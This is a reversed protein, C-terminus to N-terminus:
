FPFGPFNKLGRGQSLIVEQMEKELTRLPIRNRAMKRQNLRRYAICRRYWYLSEASNGSMRYIRAISQLADAKFTRSSQVGEGCRGTALSHLPQRVIGELVAVAEEVRGVAALAKGRALRVLPCREAIEWAEEAARLSLCFRGKEFYIESLTALLYHTKGYERIERRVQRLAEDYREGDMLGAITTRRPAEARDRSDKLERRIERLSRRTGRVKNERMFAICKEFAPVARKVNDEMDYSNAIGYLAEALYTKASSVGEGCAGTALSSVGQEVIRKYILRGRKDKRSRVLADALLLRSAPCGPHYELAKQAYYIARKIDGTEYAFEGTKWYEWGKCLHIYALNYLLRHTAGERRIEKEVLKFAREYLGRSVLEDVDDLLDGFM